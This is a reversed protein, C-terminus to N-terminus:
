EGIKKYKVDIMGYYVRQVGDTFFTTYKKDLEDAIVGQYLGRGYREPNKFRFSYINFGMPSKGILTIDTKVRRDSIFPLGGSGGDPQFGSTPQPLSIPGFGWDFPALTFPALSFPALSFPAPTSCTGVQSFIFCGENGVIGGGILTGTQDSRNTHRTSGRQICFTTDTTVPLYAGGGTGVYTWGESGDCQTFNFNGGECTSRLVARMQDCEGGAAPPTPMPTPPPTVPAPTPPATVPAETPSPTPPSTPLPSAGPSVPAPTVPASTANAPAPTPSPTPEPTPNNLPFSIETSCGPNVARVIGTTASDPMTVDVGQLVQTRTFNYPSVRNAESVSTHYVAFVTADAGVNLGRFRVIQSM